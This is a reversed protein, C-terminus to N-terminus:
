AKVKSPLVPPIGVGLAVIGSVVGGGNGPTISITDGDRIVIAAGAGLKISDADLSLISPKFGGDSSDSYSVIRPNQPDGEIFAVLVECGLALDSKGGAIGPNAKCPLVDPWGASKNVAQLAFRDITQEIVRYRVLGYYRYPATLEDVIARLARLIRTEIM